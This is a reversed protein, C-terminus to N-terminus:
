LAKNILEEQIEIKESFSPLPFTTLRLSNKLINNNQKNNYEYEENVKNDDCRRSEDYINLKFTNTVFDPIAFENNKAKESFKNQFATISTHHPEINEKHLRENELLAFELLEKPPGRELRSLSLKTAIFRNFNGFQQSAIEHKSAKETANYYRQLSQNLINMMGFIGVLTIIYKRPIFVDVTGTLSSASVFSSITIGIMNLRNDVRRWYQASQGHMWKLGGAKEGWAKLLDEISSRNWKKFHLQKESETYSSVEDNISQLYYNSTNTLKNSINSEVIINGSDSTDINSM